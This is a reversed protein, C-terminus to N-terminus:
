TRHSLLSQSATAASVAAGLHRVWLRQWDDSVNGSSRWLFAVEELLYSHPPPVQKWADTAWQCVEASRPISLPDSLTLHPLFEFAEAYTLVGSNLSDHLAHLNSNGEAVSLYVVNTTPFCCVSSFQVLFPQFRRLVAHVAASATEVPVSLPRPPLLTVHAQPHAETPFTQRLGDLLPGLPAPVYSVL